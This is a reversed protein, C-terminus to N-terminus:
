ASQESWFRVSRNMQEQTQPVFRRGLFGKRIGGVLIKARPDSSKATTGEIWVGAGIACLTREEIVSIFVPDILSGEDVVDFLWTEPM